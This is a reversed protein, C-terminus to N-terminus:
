RSSRLRYLSLDLHFGPFQRVPELPPLIKINSEEPPMTKFEKITIGQDVQLLLMIQKHQLSQSLTTELDYPSWVVCSM